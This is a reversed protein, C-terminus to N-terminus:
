LSVLAWPVSEPFYDHITKLSEALANEVTQLKHVRKLLLEVPIVCINYMYIYVYRCVYLMATGLAKTVKTVDMRELFTCKTHLIHIDNTLVLEPASGFQNASNEYTNCGLKKFPQCATRGESTEIVLVVESNYEEEGKQFGM